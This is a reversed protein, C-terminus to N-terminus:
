YELCEGDVINTVNLTLFVLQIEYLMIFLCTVFCDSLYMFCMQVNVTTLNAKLSRLIGTSLPLFTFIETWVRADTQYTFCKQVPVLVM